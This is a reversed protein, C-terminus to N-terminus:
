LLIGVEEVDGIPVDIGNVNLKVGESTYRVKTALGEIYTIAQIDTDEDTKPEIKVFYEGDQVRNGNNNEGDWVWNNEGASVNQLTERRVERGEHNMIVIDVESASHSLKYQIDTTDGHTYPVSETIAKVNKGTLSAAMSNTLGTSMMDQSEQLKKLGDNVNILQEVSNFQALQAAFEAGELPNVPDQHRMQAVLLQLFQQQGMENRKATEGQKFASSTQSNINHLEM